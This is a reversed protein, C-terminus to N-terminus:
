ETVPLKTKLETVAINQNGLCSWIELEDQYHTYELHLCFEKKLFSQWHCNGLKVPPFTWHIEWPSIPSVTHDRAQGMSGSHLYGQNPLGTLWGKSATVWKSIFSVELIGITRFAASMWCFLDKGKSSINFSSLHSKIVMIELYMPPKWLSHQQHICISIISVPHLNQHSKKKVAQLSLSKKYGTYSEEM